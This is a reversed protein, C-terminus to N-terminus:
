RLLPRPLELFYLPRGSTPRGTWRSPQALQFSVERSRGSGGETDGAKCSPIEDPFQWRYKQLNQALGAHIEQRDRSQVVWGQQRACVSMRTVNCQFPEADQFPVAERKSVSIPALERAMTYSEATEENFDGRGISMEVIVRERQFKLGM